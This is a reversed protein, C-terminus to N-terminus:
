WNSYDSYNSLDHYIHQVDTRTYLRNSQWLSYCEHTDLYSRHWRPCLLKSLLVNGNCFHLCWFIQWNKKLNKKKNEMIKRWKEENEEYKKTKRWEEEIEGYIENKWQNKEKKRAPSNRSIKCGVCLCYYQFRIANGLLHMCHNLAVLLENPLKHVLFLNVRHRHLDHNLYCGQSM